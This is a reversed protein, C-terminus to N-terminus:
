FKAALMIEMTIKPSIFLEERMSDTTISFKGNKGVIFHTVQLKSSIFIFDVDKSKIKGQMIKLVILDIMSEQMTFFVINEIGSKKFDEVSFNDIWLMFRHVSWSQIDFLAISDNGYSEEKIANEINCDACNNCIVTIPKKVQIGEM